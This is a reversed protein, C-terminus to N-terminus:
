STLDEIKAGKVFKLKVWHGDPEVIKYHFEKGKPHPYTEISLGDGDEMIYNRILYEPDQQTKKFEELGWEELLAEPGPSLVEIINKM